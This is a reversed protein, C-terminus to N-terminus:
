FPAQRDDPKVDVPNSDVPVDAPQIETAPTPKAAKKVAPSKAAKKAAKKKVAKKAAKPATKKAASKAAAKKPAGRRGRKPKSPGRAAREALLKVAEDMEISEPTADKPLTANVDGHKVYNGYRGAFIQVPEGDVPHPGMERLPAVRQRAQKLLEVAAPMDITLVNQDKNLSKYAGAHQVYPGFRGIGANVVKGTEPHEGLRRPLSLYEMAQELTLADPDLEKPISVRKPKKADEGVAAEGLQLYPGFPGRMVFIPVNDTPHMGLSRPGQKKERLLKESLEETLDAPAVDDPISATVQEGDVEKVLYPGYKGVRIKASLDPFELTCAARPDIQEEHLKIQEDLGEAGSYFATLYGIRESTGGAIEDLTEEMGATFKENVLNPFHQELLQTVAMAVFTPRLQTGAKTVYRDQITGIVSAYTSPRGIGDEELAKILSAETYRAPPQTEHALAQLDTCTLTDGVALVPLPRDQEALAAEPDDSDEVYARRFGPFDTTHGTARFEAEMSTLTVTQYREISDAMQTAVTRKWIMNYLALERGVLGLEEGTQMQTGAPRIAEHAEQANKSKTSFQRPSPSLYEQGYRSVVGDRAANIAEQSLTVSDTRMYTIIGEEYLRQAVSMTDRASMRLKRSSEQQLTSTTFPPSPKNSGTREEINAVSWPAPQLREQLERTTTEDLLLAKVNEKLRGTNEDFDKGTAIKQGGLAILQAEFPADAPNTLAAKLDWYTGKRFARRERERLVILRVAVSQVRGASLKSQVKKWLLPSLRYGYLRDLVRRAEQAQVLNQDLMRPNAIAAQIAQKTIESFVMRKVPVKPQLIEQLHWGISEGERDEDTALILEDANKLAAKLEAIVKKKEPSVVYIPAFGEDVNVGLRAWPEKKIEAPIEKASEPLDRVHGMSALVTYQTGLYSNIKRAKAPSEVIVLGKMRKQAM